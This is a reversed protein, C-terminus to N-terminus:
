EWFNESAPSLASACTIVIGHGHHDAAQCHTLHFRTTVDDHSDHAISGAGAIAGAGVVMMDLSAAM